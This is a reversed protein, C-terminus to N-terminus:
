CQSIVEDQSVCPGLANRGCDVVGGGGEQMHVMGYKYQEASWSGWKPVRRGRPSWCYANPSNICWGRVLESLGTLGNLLMTTWYSFCEIEEQIDGHLQSGLSEGTGASGGGGCM